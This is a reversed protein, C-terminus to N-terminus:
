FLNVTIIAFNMGDVGVSRDTYFQFGLIPLFNLQVIGTTNPVNLSFNGFINLIIPKIISAVIIISIFVTSPICIGGYSTFM